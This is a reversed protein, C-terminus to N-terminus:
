LRSCNYWVLPDEEIVILKSATALNARRSAPPQPPKNLGGFSVKPVPGTKMPELPKMLYSNIGTQQSQLSSIGGNQGTSGFSAMQLPMQGTGNFNSGMGLNSMGSINGINNTHNIGNMNNGSTMVPQYANMRLSNMNGNFQDQFGAPQSSQFGTLQPTQFGFGTPQQQLSHPMSQPPMSLRQNQLQMSLGNMLPQSGTQQPIPAMMSPIAQNHMVSPMAMMGTQQPSQMATQYQFVGNSPSPAMGVSSMQSPYQQGFSPATSSVLQPQLPVYQSQANAPQGTLNPIQLPTTSAVLKVGTGVPSATSPTAVAPTLPTFSTLDKLAGTVPQFSKVDSTSDKSPKPTWADDDFETSGKDPKSVAVGATTSSIRAKRTNNKLEGGPGAFLSDSEDEQGIINDRGFSVSLKRNRNYKQDIVKSVRLIDGEKLGLTRMVSSTIDPLVSEDMQDQQFNSAYRQCNNVDVGCNLFFEFWDFGNQPRSNSVANAQAAALAVSTSSTAPNAGSSSGASVPVVGIKTPSGSRQSPRSIPKEEDLSLGTISEVYELDEISMKSAAVAIKVGNLKHLQIKGDTCGVLAAEVKFTGSRDTWTRLKSPDPELINTRNQKESLTSIRTMSPKAPALPPKSQSDGRSRRFSNNRKVAERSASSRRPPNKTVEVYSSPIVGENGNVAHKVMWWEESKQDDLIFVDDGERVTIEDHGQADFDYLVKGYKQGTFSAAIVERLGTAKKLGSWSVWRLWLKM